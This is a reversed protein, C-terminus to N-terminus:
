FMYFGAFMLSIKLDKPRAGQLVNGGLQKKYQRYFVFSLVGVVLSLLPIMIILLQDGTFSM